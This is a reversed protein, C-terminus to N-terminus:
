EVISLTLLSEGIEGERGNTRGGLTSLRFIGLVDQKSHAYVVSIVPVQKPICM